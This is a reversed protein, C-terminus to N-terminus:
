SPHILFKRTRKHTLIFSWALKAIHSIDDQIIETRKVEEKTLRATKKKAFARRDIERKHELEEPTM